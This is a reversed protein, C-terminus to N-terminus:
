EGVRHDSPRDVLGTRISREERKASRVTVSTLFLRENFRDGQALLGDLVASQRGVRGNLM